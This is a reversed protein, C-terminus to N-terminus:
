CFVFTAQPNSYCSSSWPRRKHKQNLTSLATDLGLLTTGGPLEGTQARWPWTLVSRTVGVEKWRGHPESSIIWTLCGSHFHRSFTRSSSLHVTSRGHAQCGGPLSTNKARTQSKCDWDQKSDWKISAVDEPQLRLQPSTGAEWKVGTSAHGSELVESGWSSMALNINVGYGPPSLGTKMSVTM